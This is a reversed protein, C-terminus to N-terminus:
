PALKASPESRKARVKQQYTRRAERNLVMRAWESVPRDGAAEAWESREIDVIKITFPRGTEGARPKRSM